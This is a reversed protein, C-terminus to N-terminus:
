QEIFKHLNFLIKDWGLQYNEPAFDPGGDSLNEIGSHQLTVTTFEDKETLLWTVKTTGKSYDPHTWTHSFRKFPIIELITCVHLFQRKAGPEYFHFTAGLVLEFDPIEFYWNKFLENNTIAEWVIATNKRILVSSTIM